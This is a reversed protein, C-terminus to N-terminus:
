GKLGVYISGGPTLTLTLYAIEAAYPSSGEPRTFTVAFTVKGNPPIPMTYQYDDTFDASAIAVSFSSASVGQPVLPSLITPCDSTNTVVLIKTESSGVVVRGFDIPYAPLFPSFTCGLNGGDSGGDGADGLPTLDGASGSLCAACSLLALLVWRM